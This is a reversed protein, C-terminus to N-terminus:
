ERSLSVRNRFTWESLDDDLFDVEKTITLETGNRQMTERISAPRNDDSGIRTTSLTWQTQSAAGVLRAQLEFSSFDQGARSTAQSVSNEGLSLLSTIYVQVGPDTFEARQIFTTGDPVNEFMVCMPIAQLEGSRYDRYELQGQWKGELSSYANAPSTPAAAAPSSALAAASAILVITDFM